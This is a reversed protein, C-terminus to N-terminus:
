RSDNYKKGGCAADLEGLLIVYNKEYDYHDLYAQKKVPGWEIDEARIAYTGTSFLIEPNEAKIKDIMIMRSTSRKVKDVLRLGNASTIGSAKIKELTETYANQVHKKQANLEKLQKEIHAIELQMEYADAYM